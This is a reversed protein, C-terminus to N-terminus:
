LGRASRFADLLPKALLSQYKRRQYLGFTCEVNAANTCSDILEYLIAVKVFDMAALRRTTQALQVAQMQPTLGRAAIQPWGYETVYLPVPRGAIARLWDARRTMATTMYAQAEAFNIGMFQYPYMHIVVGDAVALAKRLSAGVPTTPAPIATAAMAAFIAPDAVVKLSPNVAHIADAAAVFLNVYDRSTTRGHLGDSPRWENGIEFAVTQDGVRQAVFAAFRAFAAVAEPSTPFKGSDYNINHMQLILVSRIGSAKLASFLTANRLSWVYKGRVREVQRWSIADRNISVGANHILPIARTGSMGQHFKTVVGFEAASITVPVIMLLLSLLLKLGLM